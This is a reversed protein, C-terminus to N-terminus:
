PTEILTTSTTSTTTTDEVAAYHPCVFLDGLGVIQRLMMLTDTATIEDNGNVDCICLSCEELEVAARLTFLADTTNVMDTSNAYPNGCLSACGEPDCRECQENCLPTILCAGASCVASLVCTEGDRPLCELGDNQPQLICGQSEEDCVTIGCFEDTGNCDVPTGAVCGNEVDCSEAGNCFVGDSCAADSGTHSCSDSNEDCGDVTCGIGDDCVNAAGAECGILRNCIEVGNCFLGDDCDGDVVCEDTPDQCLGTEPNCIQGGGCDSDDTCPGDPDICTGTETNCVQGGGCDSDDTCPGDPDICTGTEINCVQGGGCDSDDTCPGDPDICTGTEINCVQGGLCDSDDDCPGNPEFCDGTEVDCRLGDACDADEYCRPDVPTECVRLEVNCVKGAPCDADSLCGGPVCTGTEIECIENSACDDNSTCGDPTPDYCEGSALHCVQNGPCDADSLCMPPLVSDSMDSYPITSSFAGMNILRAHAGNPGFEDLDIACEIVTDWPSADGTPFPDTAQQSASCATNYQAACSGGQCDADSLCSEGNNSCVNAQVANNCRKTSTDDCALIRLDTLGAPDGRLTSCLASNIAGDADSDFLLCLDASNNGSLGTLDLSASAHLEYPTGAGIASCFETVDKQGPDDNAGDVDVICREAFAPTAMVLVFVCVLAKTVAGTCASSLWCSFKNVSM